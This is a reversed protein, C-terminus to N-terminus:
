RPLRVTFVSGSGPASQVEITGQHAEVIWRCFGLGLGVSRSSGAPSPRRTFFKDYIHPLEEAPIGAGTDRVTLRAAGTEEAIELKVLGGPPTHKVANDLLNHVLRQLLAGDAPLTVAPPADMEFRLKKEEALVQWDEWVTRSIEALDVSERGLSDEGEEAHALMLLQSVVSDMEKVAEFQAALTKRYEESERPQRLAVELEGKMITLPTRLEHSAAASFQRLRKFGRELRSLMENFTRALAELEDRTAPVEVRDALRGAGIKQAKLIIRSVPKLAFSSIIWDVLTSALLISPIILYLWRRLDRLSRKSPGLTEYTQVHYLVRGNEIVPRTALRVARGQVSATEYVTFGLSVAESLKAPEDGFRRNAYVVRGERDLIRFPAGTDAMRTERAWRNVLGSFKGRRIEADLTDDKYARNEEGALTSQRQGRWEGRWFTYVSEATRDAQSFLRVNLDRELADSVRDYFIWSFGGLILALVAAHWLTLAARLPLRM